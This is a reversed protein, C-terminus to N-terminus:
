WIGRLFVELRGFVLEIRHDKSLRLVVSLYVDDWHLTQYPNLKSIDGDNQAIDGLCKRRSDKDCQLGADQRLEGRCKGDHQATQLNRFM